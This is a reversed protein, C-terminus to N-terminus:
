AQIQHSIGNGFFIGRSILNSYIRHVQSLRTAKHNALLWVLTVIVVLCSSMTVFVLFWFNGFLMCGLMSAPNEFFRDYLVWTDLLELWAGDKAYKAWVECCNLERSVLDIEFSPILWIDLTVSFSKSNSSVFCACVLM